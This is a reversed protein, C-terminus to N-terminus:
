YNKKDMFTGRKELLKKFNKIDNFNIFVKLAKKM